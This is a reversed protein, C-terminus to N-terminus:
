AEDSQAPPLGAPARSGRPTPGPLSLTALSRHLATLVERVAPVKEQDPWYDISLQRDPWGRLTRAVLSHHRHARIALEPLLTLGLGAAAFSQMAVYDDAVTLIPPVVGLPAYLAGLMQAFRQSGVLWSDNALDQVDLVRRGAQPHDRPLLLHMHETLLPVRRLGDTQGPAPVDRSDGFRYTLALDVEGTRVLQYAHPQEATQVLVEIEPHECRLRALATAVITANGSPFAALRVTGSGQGITAAIRRDARRLEEMAPQMQELIMRGVQTLQMSRGMRVAVPAGLARELRRIQYTVGPQTMRLERAAASFSGTKAVVQLLELSAADVVAM